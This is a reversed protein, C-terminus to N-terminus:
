LRPTQLGGYKRAGLRRSRSPNRCSLIRFVRNLYISEYLRSLDVTGAEANMRGILKSGGLDMYVQMGLYARWPQQCHRCTAYLSVEPAQSGWFM